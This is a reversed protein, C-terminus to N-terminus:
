DNLDRRREHYGVFGRIKHMFRVVLEQCLQLFFGHIMEARRNQRSATMCSRDKHLLM